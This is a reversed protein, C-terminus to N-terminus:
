SLEERSAPQRRRALDAVAAATTLAALVALVAAPSLAHALYAAEAALVATSVAVAAALVVREPLDLRPLLRVVAIGPVALAFAFVAASRLAGPGTVVTMGLVLWGSAALLLPVAWPPVQWQGPLWRGRGATAPGDPGPPLATM